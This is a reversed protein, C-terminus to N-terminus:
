KRRAKEYLSATFQRRRAKRMRQNHAFDASSVRTPSWLTEILLYTFKATDRRLVADSHRDTVQALVEADARFFLIEVSAATDIGFSSADEASIYDSETYILDFRCFLEHNAAAFGDSEFDLILVVSLPDLAAWESILSRLTDQPWGQDRLSAISRDIPVAPGLERSATQGLFLALAADVAGGVLVGGPAFQVLLDSGDGVQAFRERISPEGDTKTFLESREVWDVEHRDALVREASAPISISGVLQTLALLHVLVDLRSPQVYATSTSFSPARVM